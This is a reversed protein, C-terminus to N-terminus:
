NTLKAGAPIEEVPRDRRFLRAGSAGKLMVIGEEVRVMAGERLALVAIDNEELYQLLREERTEGMHTSNPDPDAYHPNIQFGILGLAAFSPPQTIPMDNTTKMTPCAVVSGASSGVYPTGEGVKRGIADVLNHEYLAKLLRFTNGGGIFVAEADKLASRADSVRHVSELDYGMAAFRIRNKETYSEIDFMAFPVFLVRKLQGLFARIEGEAHDL